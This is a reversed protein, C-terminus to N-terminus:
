APEASLRAPPDFSRMRPNEPDFGRRDTRAAMSVSAPGCRPNPGPGGDKRPPIRVGCPQNTVVFSMAVRRIRNPGLVPTTHLCKSVRTRPSPRAPLLASTSLAQEPVILPEAFQTLTVGRASGEPPSWGSPPAVDHRMSATM